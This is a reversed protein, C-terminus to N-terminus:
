RNAMVFTYEFSTKSYNHLILNNAPFKNKEEMCYIKGKGPQQLQAVNQYVLNSTSATWDPSDNEVDGLEVPTRRSRDRNSESQKRRIVFCCM